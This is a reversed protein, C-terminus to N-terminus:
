RNAPKAFPSLGAHTDNLEISKIAVKQNKLDIKDIDFLLQGLDVKTAMTGSRYDVKIKSIDIIGLKLTMNLPKVATDVPVAAATTATPTQIIRTDIGSITIKPITFKMKDLDFDKIKTDFHGLLFKINNGTIADKYSVNIRDLNITGVSFKM